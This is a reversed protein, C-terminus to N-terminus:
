NRQAREEMFGRRAVLYNGWANALRDTAPRTDWVGEVGYGRIRLDRTYDATSIVERWRSENFKRDSGASIVSLEGEKSRVQLPTGWADAKPVSSVYKPVLIKTLEDISTAKPDQGRNKERYRNLAEKLEEFSSMTAAARERDPDHDISEPAPEENQMIESGRAIVDDPTGFKKDPGASAVIYPGSPPIVRVRFPTDWGDTRPLEGIYAPELHKALEDISTVMPLRPHDTAYADAATAISRFSALTRRHRSQDMAREALEVAGAAEVAPRAWNISSRTFQGDRFVIDDASLETEARANWTTRDFTRDSGAAVIVYSSKAPDAQIHFPTGWADLLGEEWAENGFVARSLDAGSELKPMAGKERWLKEIGAGAEYMAAATQFIMAADHASASDARLPAITFLLVVVLLARHM